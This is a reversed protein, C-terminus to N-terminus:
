HTPEPIQNTWDCLAFDILPFPLYPPLHLTLRAGKIRGESHFMKLLAISQERTYKSLFPIEKGERAKRTYRLLRHCLFRLAVFDKQRMSFNPDIDADPCLGMYLFLVIFSNFLHILHILVGKHLDDSKNPSQAINPNPNQGRSTPIQSGQVYSSIIGQVYLNVVGQIYGNVVAPRLM